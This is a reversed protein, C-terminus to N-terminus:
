TGKEFGKRVAEVPRAALATLDVTSQPGRPGQGGPTEADAEQRKSGKDGASHNGDFSVVVFGWRSGM